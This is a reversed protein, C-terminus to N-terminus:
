KHRSEINSPAEYQVKRAMQEEGSLPASYQLNMRNSWLSEGVPKPALMWLHPARTCTKRVAARSKHLRTALETQKWLDANRPARQFRFDFPQRLFTEHLLWTSYCLHKRSKFTPWLLKNCCFFTCLKQTLAEKLHLECLQWTHQWMSVSPLM